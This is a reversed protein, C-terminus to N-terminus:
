LFFEINTATVGRRIHRRTLLCTVDPIAERIPVPLEHEVPDDADDLAATIEAYREQHQDLGDERRNWGLQDQGQRSEDRRAAIEVHPRDDQEGRAARQQARQGPVEAAADDAVVADPAQRAAM